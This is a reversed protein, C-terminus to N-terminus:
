SIFIEELWGDLSYKYYTKENIPRYDTYFFQEPIEPNERDIVLINSPDYFDYDKISANTTILKRGAGLMEITRITLGVQKPHQIDIVSRSQSILGILENKTLPIYKFDNLRATRYITNGLKYVLFLKWNQLYLYFYYKKNINTLQEQIKKLLAYRDSHVTGIFLSDYKYQKANIIEAYENLFFLPRFKISPNKKCDEKDFSFIKNFYPMYYIANKKNRMSDWMYLIFITTPFKVKLKELFFKPMAELNIVLVYDYKNRNILNYISNYYYAIYFHLIKPFFRIFAKVWFTNAPREDFFDVRAGLELLRKKISKEYGFFTPSFLLISKNRFFM